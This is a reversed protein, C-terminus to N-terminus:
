EYCAAMSWRAHYGEKIFLRPALPWGSYGCRHNIGLINLQWKWAVALSDRRRASGMRAPVTASVGWHIQDHVAPVPLAPFLLRAHYALGAQLALGFAAAAIAPLM